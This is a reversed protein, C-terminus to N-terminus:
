MIYVKEVQSFAFSERTQPCTIKNENNAAMQQLAKKGYIQGNPLMLPPNTDDLPERGIRCILRSQTSHAFPLDRCLLAMKSNCVPCRPDAVYSSSSASSANSTIQTSPTSVAPILASSLSPASTFSTSSIIASTSINTLPTIPTSDDSSLTSTYASSIIPTSLSLTSVISPALSAPTAVAPLLSSIFASSLSVPATAASSTVKKRRKSTASSTAPNEKDKCYSDYKNTNCQPTKLSALGAQLTICFISQKDLQYMKFIADRFSHVLDVWRDDSLYEQYAESVDKPSYVLLGMIKKVQHYNTEDVGSSFYKRSYKIAELYLGKQFLQIFEQIRLEFELNSRIKRLKSKNDYCWLLCSGTQQNILSKEIEKAMMFLDINTLHQINSYEALSLATDYYGRRLFYEILMRDLRKKKWTNYKANMEELNVKLKPNTEYNLLILSNNKVDENNTPDDVGNATNLSNDLEKNILKTNVNSQDKNKAKEITLLNTNHSLICGEQLHEIRIKCLKLAEKEESLNEKAKITSYELCKIDIM